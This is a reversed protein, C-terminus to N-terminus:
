VDCVACVYLYVGASVRLATVLIQRLKERQFGKLRQIDRCALHEWIRLSNRKEAAEHKFRLTHKLQVHLTNLTRWYLERRLERLERDEDEPHSGTGTSTDTSRSVIKNKDAGMAMAALLAKDAGRGKGKGGRAFHGGEWSRIIKGTLDEALRLEESPTAVRGHMHITTALVATLQRKYYGELTGHRAMYFRCVHTHWYLHIHRIYLHKHIIAICWM